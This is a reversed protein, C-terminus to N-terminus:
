SFEVIELQTGADLTIANNSSSSVVVRVDTGSDVKFISWFSDAFTGTATKVREVTKQTTWANQGTISTQLEYTLTVNNQTVTTFATISIRLFTSNTITIFGAPVQTTVVNATNGFEFSAQANNNDVSAWLIPAPGPDVSYPVSQGTTVNLFTTGIGGSNSGSVSSLDVDIQVTDLTVGALSGSGNTTTTTITVNSGGKFYLFDNTSAPSLVGTLSSDSATIVGYVNPIQAPSYTFVGTNNNYSLSGGGSATSTSVSLDTLAIGGGGLGSLDAPTYTFNGTNSNYALSGSGSATATSVSFDGLTLSGGQLAATQTPTSGYIVFTFPSFSSPTRSQVDDYFEARFGNVTKNTIGVYYNDFTESDTIVAYNADPQPTDFTFEFRSNQSDWNSWSIGTGSGDVTDAVFGFAFPAILSSTYSSPVDAPTFTFEGTNSNYALAGGASGSATTVSLDSLAIGGAVSSLDISTTAAAGVGTFSLTNNLFSISSIYDRTDTNVGSIDVTSAFAAGQGTFSIVGNSYSVNSVYDRTDTNLSSIDVSGSFASGLGSFSLSGNSYSVTNIYGDAGSSGTAISELYTFNDDLEQHTLETGKTLRLTLAM